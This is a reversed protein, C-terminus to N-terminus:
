GCISRMSQEINKRGGSLSKDGWCGSPGGQLERFVKWVVCVKQDSLEPILIINKQGGFTRTIRFTPHNSNSNDKFLM